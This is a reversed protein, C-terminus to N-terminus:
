CISGDYRNPNGDAVVQFVKPSGEHTWEVYSLISYEWWCYSEPIGDRVGVLRM